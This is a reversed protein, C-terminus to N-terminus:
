RTVEIQEEIRPWMATLEDPVNGTARLRILDTITKQRTRPKGVLKLLLRAARDLVVADEMRGPICKMAARALDAAILGLPTKVEYPM